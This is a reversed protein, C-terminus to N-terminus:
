HEEGAFTFDDCVACPGTGVLRPHETCSSLM